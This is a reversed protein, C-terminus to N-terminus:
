EVSGSRKAYKHMVIAIAQSSSLSALNRTALNYRKCDKEASEWIEEVPVGYNNLGQSIDKFWDESFIIDKLDKKTVLPWRKEHRKGALEKIVYDPLKGEEFSRNFDNVDLGLALIGNEYHRLEPDVAEWPSGHYGNENDM